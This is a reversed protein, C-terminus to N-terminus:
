QEYVQEDLRGASLDDDLVGFSVLRGFDLGFLDARGFFLGLSRIRSSSCCM